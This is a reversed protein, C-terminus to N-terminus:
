NKYMLPNAKLIMVRMEHESYTKVDLILKMDGKPISNPLAVTEKQSFKFIVEAYNSRQFLNVRDIFLHIM